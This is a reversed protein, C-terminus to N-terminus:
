HFAVWASGDYGEFKSTTTNFRITGATPTAASTEGIKIAGNVELKETPTTTGIGVNGNTIIRVRETGNDTAFSLFGGITSGGRHFNISANETLSYDLSLKSSIDGSVNTVEGKKTTLNYNSDLNARALIAVKAYQTTLTNQIDLSALPTLTGIGVNDKFYSNGGNSFISFNKTVGGAVEDIFLGYNNTTVTTSGVARNQRIRNGYYNTIKGASTASFNSNVFSGYFDTVTSVGNWTINNNIASFQTIPDTSTSNNTMSNDIAVFNTPSGGAAANTINLSLGRFTTFKAPGNNNVSQSFGYLNSSSANINTSSNTIVNTSGFVNSPISASAGINTTFQAGRLTSATGTGSHFTVADVGRVEGLNGTSSPSTGVQIIIGRINSIGGSGSLRSYFAGAYANAVTGSGYHDAASRLGLISGSVNSSSNKAVEVFTDQGILDTINQATNNGLYLNKVSGIYRKATSSSAAIHADNVISRTYDFAFPATGGISYFPSTLGFGESTFLNMKIFKDNPNSSFIPDTGNSTSLDTTWDYGGINNFIKGSDTISIVDNNALARTAQIADTGNYTWEDSNVSWATGNYYWYSNTTTDYVQLGTAPTAIATREGTTMRPM